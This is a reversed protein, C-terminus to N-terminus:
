QRTVLTVRHKRILGSGPINLIGKLLVVGTPFEVMVQVQCSKCGIIRDRQHFVMIQPCFARM